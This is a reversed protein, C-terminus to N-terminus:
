HQSGSTSSSGTRIHDSCKFRVKLLFWRQGQPLSRPLRTLGDVPLEPNWGKARVRTCLYERWKPLEAEVLKAYLVALMALRCGRQQQAEHLTTQYMDGTLHRSFDFAVKWSVAPNALNSLRRRWRSLSAATGDRMDPWTEHTAFIAAVNATRIDRLAVRIGYIEGVATPMGRKVWRIPTIFGLIQNEVERLLRSSMFFHRHPYALLTTLFVNVTLIHVALSMTSRVGNFLALTSRFKAMADAHQDEITVNLGVYIGLLREQHSIHVQGGRADYCSQTESATM